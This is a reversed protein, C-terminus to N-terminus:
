DRQKLRFREIYRPKGAGFAAGLGVLIALDRRDPERMTPGAERALVDSTDDDASKMVRVFLRSEALFQSFEWDSGGRMRLALGLGLADASDDRSWWAREVIAQLELGLEVDRPEFLSPTLWTAVLLRASAAAALNRPQDDDIARRAAAEVGLGFPGLWWVLEVSGGVLETQRDADEMYTLAAGLMPTREGEAAAASTMAIVLGVAVFTKM